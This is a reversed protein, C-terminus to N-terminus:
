YDVNEKELAILHYELHYYFFHSVKGCNSNKIDPANLKTILPEFLNTRFETELQYNNIADYVECFAPEKERLHFFRRSGHLVSVGYEEGAKCNSWYMCHDPRYNWQCDYIFLQDPSFSFYINILDQDGWTTNKEYTNFYEIMKEKWKQARMRELDMLMVGSNVGLEGYYPHRAFRKYWSMARDEHEPALASLQSSNFHDFFGWLDKVSRLFLVDTDVYLVRNTVGPSIIYPIFIRQTACLKFLSKWQRENVSEPYDIDYLTMRIRNKTKKPWNAFDNIFQEHLEKEAFIHFVIPEKTFIVASKMMVVTEKQRDGCAVVAIHITTNHKFVWDIDINSEKTYKIKEHENLKDSIQRKEDAFAKKLTIEILDSIVNCKGKDHVKEIGERVNPLISLVNDNDMDFKKYEEYIVRFEPQSDSTFAKRCGHLMKIGYREAEKCISMYMCHDTRYNWECTYIYLQEPHESFYINILDQDGWTIKYKYQQYHKIMDKKWSSNRIRELHMLMVGSNVGLPKYYPHQAFRNYWGTSPDEHEPALASIQNENMIHFITWIEQPPSVFLVDTDVYLLKNTVSEPILDPIFLRQTACLKFIKKWETMDIDNPYQIDYFDYRFNEQTSAPFSDFDSKFHERLAQETFIHFHLKGKTLILASKIMITTEPQRDGCAVVAIHVTEMWESNIKRDELSGKDKATEKQVLLINNEEAFVFLCDLFLIYLLTVSFIKFM